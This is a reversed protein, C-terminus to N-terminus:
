ILDSILYEEEVVIKDIIEKCKGYVFDNYFEITGLIVDDTPKHGGILPVGLYCQPELTKPVFGSLLLLNKREWDSDLNYVPLLLKIDYELLLQRFKELMDDLEIVFGQDRRAGDSIIYIDLRKCLAISYLYMATRCTLCNFQSITIEGYKESIESPKMNFYPLFFHRWIGAINRVGLFSVSDTGYREIIRDAGHKANEAKAGCGNEYTILYVMKDEEILKCAALFSDKGGSFLQLTKEKM